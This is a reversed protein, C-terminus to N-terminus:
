QEEGILLETIRARLRENEASLEDTQAELDSIRHTADVSEYYYTAGDHRIVVPSGCTPCRETM